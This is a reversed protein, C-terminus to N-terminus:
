PSCAGYARWSPVKWTTGQEQDCTMCYNEIYKKMAPWYFAHKARELTKEAGLHGSSPIDHLYKILEGRKNAPVILQFITDSNEEATFEPYLMGGRM